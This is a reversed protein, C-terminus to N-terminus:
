NWDMGVPDGWQSWCMNTHAKWWHSGQLTIVYVYKDM